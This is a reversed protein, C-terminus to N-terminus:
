TLDINKYGFYYTLVFGAGYSIVIGGLAVLVGKWVVQNITTMLPLMLLGSPGFMTNLGINDGGWLNYAGIWFGGIAGGICATIFPKIRPLSVGYILPEGIGLFGPIIAGQIQKRIKTNKEARLWLALAMGVQGAGGMALVPFLGNVGQESLLTAYVPVFGQHIGFVVTILFIGALFSAGFPNTYLNSFLFSVGMFIYGSIPFILIFNLILLILLVFTPTLIMDLVNPVIKRLYKEMIGVLSASIMVGFISGSPYSITWNATASIPAEPRFGKIFWNNGSIHMGLFNFGDHDAIFINNFSTAFAAVYLGSIIAGLVGAGNFIEATRWGVIILFTGKWITMLIDFLGFWSRAIENTWILSQKDFSTTTFISQLIGAVGSLIGAGIFGIILPAFIGSFKGIFKQFPSINRAKQAKKNQAAITKLDGEKKTKSDNFIKIFANKMEIVKGPGYIVQVQNGVINVGLTYDLKIIENKVVKTLNKVDIRLRTQCNSIIKINSKSGLFKLLNKAILLVKQEQEKM